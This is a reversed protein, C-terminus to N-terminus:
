PKLPFRQLIKGARMYPKTEATLFIEGIRAPGLKTQASIGDFGACLASLNEPPARFRLFTSHIIKPVNVGTATLKERLLNEKELREVVRRRIRPIEGSPNGLPLIGAKRTLVPAGFLLDFARIPESFEDAFIAKLMEGLDVALTEFNEVLEPAPNRHLAFNVFTLITVHTEWFPYVYIAPDLSSIKEALSNYDCELAAPFPWACALNLGFVPVDPDASLFLDTAFGQHLIEWRLRALEASDFSNRQANTM